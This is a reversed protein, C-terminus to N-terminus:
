GFSVLGTKQFMVSLEDKNLGMMKAISILKQLTAKDFRKASVAVRCLSTMIRYTCDHRAGKGKFRKVITQVSPPNDFSRVIFQRLIPKQQPEIRFFRELIVLTFHDMEGLVNAALGITAQTMGDLDEVRARTASGLISNKAESADFSSVGGLKMMNKFM